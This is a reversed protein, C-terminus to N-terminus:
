CVCFVFCWVYQCYHVSCVGRVFYLVGYWFFLISQVCGWLAWVVSSVCVSCVVCGREGVRGDRVFVCM